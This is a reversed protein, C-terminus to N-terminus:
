EYTFEYKIENKGDYYRIIKPKDGFYDEFYLTYGDEEIRVLKNGDYIYKKDKSNNKIKELISFLSTENEDLEKRVTQEFKKYYIEKYNKTYTYKEGNNISPKIVNIELKNTDYNVNYEKERKVGNIYSNEIVKANFKSNAFNSFALINISIIIIGLIKKM